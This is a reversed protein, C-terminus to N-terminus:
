GNRDACALTRPWEDTGAPSPDFLAYESLCPGDIRHFQQCRLSLSIM